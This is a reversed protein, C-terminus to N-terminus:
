ARRYPLSLIAKPKSRVGSTRQTVSSQPLLQLIHHKHEYTIQYRKNNSQQGKLQSALSIHMMSRSRMLDDCHKKKIQPKLRQEYCHLTNLDIQVDPTIPLTAISNTSCMTRIPLLTRIAALLAITSTHSTQPVNCGALRCLWNTCALM